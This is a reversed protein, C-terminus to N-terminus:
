PYIAALDMGLHRDMISVAPNSLFSFPGSGELLWEGIIFQLPRGTVNEFHLAHICTPRSTHFLVSKSKGNAL